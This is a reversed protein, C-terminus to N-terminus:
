VSGDDSDGVNGGSLGRERALECEDSEVEWSWEADIRNEDSIMKKAVRKAYNREEETFDKAIAWRAEGSKQEFMLRVRPFKTEGNRVRHKIDGKPKETKVGVGPKSTDGGGGLFFGTTRCLQSCFMEGPEGDFPRGCNKCKRM